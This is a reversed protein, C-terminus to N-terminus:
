KKITSAILEKEFAAIDDPEWIKKNDNYTCDVTFSAQGKPELNQIHKISINTAEEMAEEKTKFGDKVTKYGNNADAILWLRAWTRGGVVSFSQRKDMDALIETVSKKRKGFLKKLAELITM